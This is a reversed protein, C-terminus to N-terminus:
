WEGRGYWENMDSEFMQQEYIAQSEAIVAASNWGSVEGTRFNGGGSRAHCKPCDINCIDYEWEGLNHLMQSQVQPVDVVEGCFACTCTKDALTM